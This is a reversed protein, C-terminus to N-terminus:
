KRGEIYKRTALYVARPLDPAAGRTVWEWSHETLRRSFEIGNDFIVIRLKDRKVAELMAVTGPPSLLWNKCSIESGNPLYINGDTGLREPSAWEVIKRDIDSM